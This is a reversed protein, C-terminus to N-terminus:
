RISCCLTSLLLLQRKTPPLTSIPMIGRVGSRRVPSSVRTWRVGLNPCNAGYAKFSNRNRWVFVRDKGVAGALIEGDPVREVEIRQTLDLLIDEQDESV